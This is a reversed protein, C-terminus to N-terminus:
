PVPSYTAALDALGVAIMARFLALGGELDQMRGPHSLRPEAPQTHVEDADAPTPRSTM